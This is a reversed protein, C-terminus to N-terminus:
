LKIDHIEQIVPLKLIEKRQEPTAAFLATSLIEGEAANETVVAISGTKTVWKGTQPAIIHKRETTDNGSTTLCQNQLQLSHTGSAFAVKWGEGHPHNGLAMVSSNGLSLLANKVENASLIKRAKELAYGKLFGSLDIRIGDQRYHLTCTKPSLVVGAITNRNYGDSQITIDFCEQTVPHHHLCMEIMDYLDHSINVPHHFATQNIRYLESETDYFSGTKELRKWEEEIRAAISTLEVENQGCLIM